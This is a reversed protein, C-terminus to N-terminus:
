EKNSKRKAKEKIDIYGLKKTHRDCLTKYWPFNKLVRIHGANGCVECTNASIKEYRTIINNIRKLRSNTYFRLTSYKEKIQQVIVEKRKDAISIEECLDAILNNWGADFEFNPLDMYSYKQKIVEELNKPKKM